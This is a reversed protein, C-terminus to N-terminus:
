DIVSNIINIIDEGYKEYKVNGFGKISLYTEKNRPLVEIIRDMEENNYVMYPPIKNASAKAMRYAKLAKTLSEKDVTSPWSAAVTDKVSKEVTEEAQRQQKYALGTDLNRLAKALQAAMAENLSPAPTREVLEKLKTNILDVKIVKSEVEKPTEKFNITIKPNTFVTLSLVPINIMLKNVLIDNLFLEARRNEEVPSYLGEKSWKEGKKVWRSFNGHSDIEINGQISKSKIICCFQNTVLLFDINAVNGGQELRINYLGYFPVPSNKLEFYVKSLGDHVFKQLYIDNELKKRAAEDKTNNLKTYLQAIEESEKTFDKIFVPKTISKMIKSEFNGGFVTKVLSDFLGM